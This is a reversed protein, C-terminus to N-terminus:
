KNELHTIVVCNSNALFLPARQEQSNMLILLLDTWAVYYVLFAFTDVGQCSPQLNILEHCATEEAQRKIQYKNTM